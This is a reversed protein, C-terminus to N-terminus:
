YLPNVFLEEHPKIILDKDTLLRLKIKKKLYYKYM